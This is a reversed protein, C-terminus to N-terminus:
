DVRSEEVQDEEMVKSRQGEVVELMQVVEELRAEELM